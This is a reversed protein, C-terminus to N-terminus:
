VRGRSYTEVEAGADDLAVVRCADYESTNHHAWTFKGPETYARDIAEEVTDAEVLSVYEVFADQQRLVKFKPM